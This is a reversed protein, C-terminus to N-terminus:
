VIIRWRGFEWVGSDLEEEGEWSGEERGMMQRVFFTAAVTQQHQTEKKIKQM